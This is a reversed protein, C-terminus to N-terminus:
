TAGADPVRPALFRNDRVLGAACAAEVADLADRDTLTELV